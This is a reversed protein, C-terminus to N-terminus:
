GLVLGAVAPTVFAEVFGAVVFVPLLGVIVLLGRRLEAAFDAATTVGTAVRYGERGLHLGLGGGVALAPVEVLAHPVILAAFVVPDFLGSLGGVILGNFVLNGLSPLGLALGAYSGAIAVLWNNVTISVATGLPFSGFVAGPDGTVPETARPGVARGLVTGLLFAGLAVAVLGLNARLFQRLEAVGAGLGAVGRALAARVGDLASRGGPGPDPDFAAPDVGADGRTDAAPTQGRDPGARGTAPLYLGMRVLGLWPLVVFLVLVDSLRGVGLVGVATGVVFAVLYAVLEVVVYLAASGTDTRVYDLSRRVAGVPGADDVVIAEPAFLFAVYVVPVAVLAVLIGVVGGVAALVAVALLLGGQLLTLGLFARGDAFVGEVAAVLPGRRGGDPRVTPDAARSEGPTGADPDARPEAGDREAGVAAHAANVKAAGVVARFVALALLTV